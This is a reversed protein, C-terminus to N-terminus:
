GLSDGDAFEGGGAFRRRARHQAFISANCFLRTAPGKTERRSSSARIRGAAIGGRSKRNNKTSEEFGSAAVARRLSEAAIYLRPTDAETIFDWM